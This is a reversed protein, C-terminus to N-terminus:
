PRLNCPDIKCFKEPIFFSFVKEKLREKEILDQDILISMGKWFENTFHTYPIEIIYSKDGDSDFIEDIVEFSKRMFRKKIINTIILFVKKRM